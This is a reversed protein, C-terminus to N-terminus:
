TNYPLNFHNSSLLLIINISLVFASNLEHGCQTTSCDMRGQWRSLDPGRVCVWGGAFKLRASSNM